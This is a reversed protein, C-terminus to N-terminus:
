CKEPDSPQLSALNKAEESGEDLELKTEHPLTAIASRLTKLWLETRTIAAHLHGVTIHSPDSNGNSM